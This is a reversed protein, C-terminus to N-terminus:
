MVNDAFDILSSNIIAAVDKKYDHIFFHDGDFMHIKCSKSTYDHWKAVDFITAGKERKGWLVSIDCDLKTNKEIHRYTDTIRFDARLIPLFLEMLENSKLVEKPTGGLKFVEDVFEKDPLDYLVKKKSVFGPPYRGSIFMHVPYPHGLEKIRYALEYVLVSGMSHGFLAYPQEELNSIIIRHIDELAEEVSGYFPEGIRSGRGALEIPFLEIRDHLYQKWYKYVAASGGAYPLCFLKIKDM